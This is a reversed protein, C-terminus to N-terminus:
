RNDTCGVTESNSTCAFIFEYGRTEELYQEMAQKIIEALQRDTYRYLNIHLFWDCVTRLKKFGGNQLAEKLQQTESM